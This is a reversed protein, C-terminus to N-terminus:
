GARQKVVQRNRLRVPSNVDGFVVTLWGFHLIEVVTANIKTGVLRVKDGPSLTNGYKDKTSM